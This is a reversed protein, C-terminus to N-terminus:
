QQRILQSELRDIKNAQERITRAAANAADTALKAANIAVEVDARLVANEQLLHEANHIRAASLEAELQSIRKKAAELNKETAGLPKATLTYDGRVGDNVESLLEELDKALSGDAEAKARARLALEEVAHIKEELIAYLRGVFEDSTVDADAPVLSQLDLSRSSGADELGKCKDLLERIQAPLPLTPNISANDLIKKAARLEMQLQANENRLLSEDTLPSLGTIIGSPSQELQAAAHKLRAALKENDQVQTSLRAFVEELEKQQQSEMAALASRLTAVENVLRANEQVFNRESERLKLIEAENPNKFALSAPSTTSKVMAELSAIIAQRKGLEETFRAKTQAFQYQLNKLEKAQTDIKAELQRRDPDRSSPSHVSIMSEPSAGVSTQYAEELVELAGRLSEIERDKEDELLPSHPASGPEDLRRKCETYATLLATIRTPLSGKSTPMCKDLLQHASRVEQRIHALETNRPEATSGHAPSAAQLERDIDDAVRANQAAAQKLQNSLAENDKIQTSLRDLLEALVEQQGLDSADLAQQLRSNERRLRENEAHLQASDADTPTAQAVHAYPRGSSEIAGIKQTYNHEMAALKAKLDSIESRQAALVAELMDARETTETGSLSYREVEQTLILDTKAQTITRSAESENEAIHQQLSAYATAAGGARQAPHEAVRPIATRAIPPM